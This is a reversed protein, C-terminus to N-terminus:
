ATKPSNKSDQSSAKSKSYFSIQGSPKIAKYIGPRIMKTPVGDIPNPIHLTPKM